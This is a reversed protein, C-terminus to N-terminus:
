GAHCRFSVLCPLLLLLLLDLLAVLREPRRVTQTFTTPYNPKLQRLCTALDSMTTRPLPGAWPDETRRPLQRCRQANFAGLAGHPDSCIGACIAVARSHAAQVLVQKPPTVTMYRPLIPVKELNSQPIRLLCPHRRCQDRQDM